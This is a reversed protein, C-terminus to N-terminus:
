IPFRSRDAAKLIEEVPHGVPVLIKSVLEVCGFGFQIETNKCFEQLRRKIEEIDMEQEHKKARKLSALPKWALRDPL